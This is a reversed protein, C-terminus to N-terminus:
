RLSRILGSPRATVAKCNYNRAGNCRFIYRVGLMAPWSRGGGMPWKRGTGRDISRYMSRSTERAGGGPSPSM